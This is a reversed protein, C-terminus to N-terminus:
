MSQDAAERDKFANVDGGERAVSLGEGLTRTRDIVLPLGGHFRRGELVFGGAGGVFGQGQEGLVPIARLDQGPSLAQHGEQVEAEGLGLHQDVHVAEGLQGVDPRHVRPQGDARERSLVRDLPGAGDPHLQRDDGLRAAQDAVQRDTMAAGDPPLRACASGAESSGATITASSASSVSLRFPLRRVTIASWNKVPM